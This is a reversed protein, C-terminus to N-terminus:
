IFGSVGAIAAERVSGSAGAQEEEAYDKSDCAPNMKPPPSSKVLSPQSFGAPAPCQALRMAARLETMLSARLSNRQECIRRQASKEEEPGNGLSPPEVRLGELMAELAASSDRATRLAASLEELLTVAEPAADCGDLPNVAAALHDLAAQWEVPVTTCEALKIQLATRTAAVGHMTTVISAVAPVLAFTSAPSAGPPSAMASSFPAARAAPAAPRTDSSTSPAHQLAPAAGRTKLATEGLDSPSEVHQEQPLSKDHASSPTTSCAPPPPTIADQQPPPGYMRITEESGLEPSAAYDELRLEEASKGEYMQIASVHYIWHWRGDEGVFFLPLFVPAALTGGRQQAAQAAAPQFIRALDM